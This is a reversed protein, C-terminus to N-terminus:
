ACGAAYASVMMSTRASQGKDCVYRLAKGDISIVDGDGLLVAIRALVRGFAANLAKPDIVRFVTSFPIM